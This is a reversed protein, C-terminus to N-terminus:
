EALEELSRYVDDENLATDESPFPRPLSSFLSNAIVCGECVCFFSYGDTMYRSESRLMWLEVPPNIRSHDVKEMISVQLLKVSTELPM